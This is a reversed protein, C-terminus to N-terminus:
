SHKRQRHDPVQLEHVKRIGKYDSRKILSGSLSAPTAHLLLTYPYPTYLFSDICTNRPQFLHLQIHSTLYLMLRSLAARKAFGGRDLADGSLVDRSEELGRMGMSM